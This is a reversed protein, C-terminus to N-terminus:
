LRRVMNFEWRMASNSEKSEVLVPTLPRASAWIVLIGEKKWWLKVLLGLGFMWIGVM